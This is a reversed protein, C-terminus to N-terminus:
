GNSKVEREANVKWAINRTQLFTKYFEFARKPVSKFEWSQKGRLKDFKSQSGESMIGWPDFLIGDVGSKVFFKERLGSPGDFTVKKALCDKSNIECTPCPLSPDGGVTFGIEQVVKEVEVVQAIGKSNRSVGQKQAPAIFSDIDKPLVKM